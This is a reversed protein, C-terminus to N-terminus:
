AAGGIKEGAPPMWNSGPQVLPAKSVGDAFSDRFMKRVNVMTTIDGQLAQAAFHGAEFCMMSLLVHPPVGPYGTLLGRMTCTMAARMSPTIQDVLAQGPAQQQAAAPPLVQGNMEDM